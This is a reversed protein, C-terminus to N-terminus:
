RFTHRARTVAEALWADLLTPDHGDPEGASPKQEDLVDVSGRNRVATEVSRLNAGIHQVLNALSWDPCTPVNM